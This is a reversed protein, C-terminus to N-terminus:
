VDIKDEEEWYIGYIYICSMLTRSRGIIFSYVCVSTYSGTSSEGYLQNGTLYTNHSSSIFYNSIPYGLDLEEPRAAANCEESTLWALLKQLDYPPRSPLQPRSTTPAAPTTSSLFSHFAAAQGAHLAREGTSIAKLYYLLTPSINQISSTPPPHSVTLPSRQSAM